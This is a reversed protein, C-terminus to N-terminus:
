GVRGALFQAITEISTFNEPTLDDDTVYLRFEEEIFEVLGIMGLSDVIGDELLRAHVTFSDVRAMPYTAKVFAALREAIGDQDTAM